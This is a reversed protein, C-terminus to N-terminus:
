LKQSGSFYSLDEDQLPNCKQESISGKKRSCKNIPQANNGNFLSYIPM